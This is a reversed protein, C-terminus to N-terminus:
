KTKTLLFEPSNESECIIKNKLVWIKLIFTPHSYEGDTLSCEIKYYEDKKSDIISFKGEYYYRTNDEMNTQQLSVLGGKEILFKHDIMPISIKNGNIIMDDGFKNKMNYEPSIGHYVGFINFNHQQVSTLTSTSLDGSYVFSSFCLLLLSLNKM